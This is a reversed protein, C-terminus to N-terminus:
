CAWSDDVEVNRAQRTAEQYNESEAVEVADVGIGCDYIKWTKYSKVAKVREWDNQTPKGFLLHLVKM